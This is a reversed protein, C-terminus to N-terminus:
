TLPLVTPTSQEESTLEVSTPTSSMGEPVTFTYTTPAMDATCMEETSPEFEITVVDREGVIEIPTAICGSSGWTVVAFTEDQEIWAALPETSEPDVTVTDPLGKITEDAVSTPAGSASGSCGTLALAVVAIPIIRVLSTKM